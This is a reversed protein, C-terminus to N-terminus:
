HEDKLLLFQTERAVKRNTKIVNGKIHQARLISSMGDSRQKLKENCKSYMRKYLMYMSYSNIYSIYLPVDLCYVYKGFGM